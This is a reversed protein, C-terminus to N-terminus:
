YKMFYYEFASALNPMPDGVILKESELNEILARSGRAMLTKVSRVKPRGTQGIEAEGEEPTQPDKERGAAVETKTENWYPGFLAV